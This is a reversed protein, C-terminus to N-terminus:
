PAEWTVEISTAIDDRNGPGNYPQTWRHTGLADYSRVVADFGNSNSGAKGCVYVNGFRDRTIALADDNNGEYDYRQPWSQTLASAAILLLISGAITRTIAITQM